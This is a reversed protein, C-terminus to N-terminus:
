LAVFIIQMHGYKTLLPIIERAQRQVVTNLFLSKISNKVIISFPPCTIYADNGSVSDSLARSNVVKDKMLINM